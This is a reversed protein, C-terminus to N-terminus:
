EVIEFDFLPEQPGSAPSSVPKVNPFNENNSPSPAQVPQSPFTEGQESVIAVNRFDETPLSNLNVYSRLNLTLHGYADYSFVANSGQTLQLESFGSHGSAIAKLQQLYAGPNKDRPFTIAVEACSGATNARCIVPYNNMRGARLKPSGNAWFRNFREAIALCRERHTWRGPAWDNWRIIPLAGQSHRAYTIYEGGTRGCFFRGQQALSSENSSLVFFLSSTACLATSAFVRTIKSLSPRQIM